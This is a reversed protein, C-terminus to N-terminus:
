TVATATPVSLEQLSKTAKVYPATYQVPTTTSIDYIYGELGHEGCTDRQPGLAKYTSDIYVTSYSRLQGLHGPRDSSGLHGAVTSITCPVM